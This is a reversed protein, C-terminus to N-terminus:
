GDNCTVLVDLKEMSSQSLNLKMIATPIDVDGSSYKNTLDRGFHNLEHVTVPKVFM